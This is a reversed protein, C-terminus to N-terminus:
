EIEGMLDELLDVVMGENQNDKISSGMQVLMDGLSVRDVKAHGLAEANQRLDVRISEEAERLSRQLEDGRHAYKTDLDQLRGNHRKELDKVNATLREDLQRLQAGHRSDLEQLQQSLKSGQEQISSTLESSQANMQQAQLRGQEVLQDTLRANEQQLREIDRTLNDFRQAYERMQAGFVIERIRELKETSEIGGVVKEETTEAAKKACM